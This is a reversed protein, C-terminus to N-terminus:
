HSRVGARAGGAGDDPGGKYAEIDGRNARTRLLLSKDVFRKESVLHLAEKPKKLPM